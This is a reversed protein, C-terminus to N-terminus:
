EQAKQPLGDRIEYYDGKSGAYIHEAGTLGTPENMAGAMISIHKAGTADWFLQSGCNQCFGRRAAASSQYWRLSEASVM